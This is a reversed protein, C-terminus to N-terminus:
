AARSKKSNKSRRARGGHERAHKWGLELEVDIERRKAPTLKSGGARAVLRDVADAREAERGLATILASMNGAYLRDARMKLVKKTESDVSVSFTETAGTRRRYKMSLFIAFNDPSVM